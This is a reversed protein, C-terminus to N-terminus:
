ERSLLRRILTEESVSHWLCQLHRLLEGDIDKRQKIEWTGLMLRSGIWCEISAEEETEGWRKSWKKFFDHKWASLLDIRNLPEPNLMQKILDNAETSLKEPIKYDGSKIVSYWKLLAHPREPDKLFEMGSSFPTLGTLMVYLIVGLSWVDIKNGDYMKEFVEPAAYHVSGCPTSLLQGSPQLAAMGFDALKVQPNINGNEQDVTETILINEPKLDRHHIGLRHCHLMAAVLQRFIWVTEDEPIEGRREVYDFLEGGDVYEM